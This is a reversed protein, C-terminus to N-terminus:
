RGSATADSELALTWLFTVDSQASLSCPRDHPILSKIERLAGTGRVRTRHRSQARRTEALTSL